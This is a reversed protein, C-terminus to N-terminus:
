RIIGTPNSAALDFLRKVTLMIDEVPRDYEKSLKSTETKLVLDLLKDKELPELAEIKDFYNRKLEIVKAKAASKIDTNSKPSEVEETKQNIVIETLPKKVENNENIMFKNSVKPSEIDSIFFLIFVTSFVMIGLVVLNNLRIKKPIKM